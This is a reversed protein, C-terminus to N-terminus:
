PTFMDAILEGLSHDFYASAYNQDPRAQDYCKFCRRLM